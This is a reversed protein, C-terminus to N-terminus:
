MDAVPVLYYVTSRSEMAGGLVVLKESMPVTLALARLPPASGHTCYNESPTNSSLEHLTPRDGNADEIISLGVTGNQNNAIGGYMILRGNGICALSPAYRIVQEGLGSVRTWVYKNKAALDIYGLNGGAGSFAAASHVFIRSGSLCSQQAPGLSGVPGMGQTKPASWTMTYLNLLRLELHGVEQSRLRGAVFAIQGAPAYLEIASTVRWFPMDKANYAPLPMLENTLLDFAFLDGLNGIGTATFRTGIVLIKDEFLMAAHFPRLEVGHFQAEVEKWNESVTDLVSVRTSTRTGGLVWIYKGVLTASCGVRNNLEDGRGRCDREYWAFRTAGTM